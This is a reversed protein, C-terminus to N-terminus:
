ARAGKMSVVNAPTEPPMVAFWKAADGGTVLERYNTFIIKPSNGAELATQNVNQTEAVRYSVFSHRLGNQPWRGIIKGAWLVLREAARHSTFIKGKAKTVTGLWAALAPCIPVIRRSATKADEASIEIHGEALKIDEWELRAMEAARIGTFAAVAFYTRQEDTEAAHLIKELEAPTLIGIKGGKTKKPRAVGQAETPTNKPLHGKDRAYTFLTGITVAANKRTRPSHGLSRLWADLEATTVNVIPTKFREKLPTLHYKLARLYVPSVGDQEKDRLFDEVVDPLPKSKVMAPHRLAYESAAALLSAGTPLAKAAAIYQRVADLMPVGLPKLERSAIVYSQQDSNTLKLVDREGQNLRDAVKGAETKADDLSGFARRKRAGGEYYCLTFLPYDVGNKASTGQYIKLTVNGNRVFIPRNRVIGTRPKKGCPEKEHCNMVVLQCCSADVTLM